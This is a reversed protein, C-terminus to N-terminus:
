DNERERKREEILEDTLLTFRDAIEQMVDRVFMAVAKEPNGEHLEEDYRVHLGNMALSRAVIYIGVEMMTCGVCANNLRALTAAAEACKEVLERSPGNHGGGGHSHPTEDFPM